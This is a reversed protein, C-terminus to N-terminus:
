DERNFSECYGYDHRYEITIDMYTNLPFIWPRSSIGSNQYRDHPSGSTNAQDRRSRESGAQRACVRRSEGTFEKMEDSENVREWGGGGVMEVLM